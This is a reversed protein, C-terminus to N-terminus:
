RAAHADIAVLDKSLDVANNGNARGDWVISLLAPGANRAYAGSAGGTREGLLYPRGNLAFAGGPARFQDPTNGGVFSSRGDNRESGTTMFNYCAFAEGTSWRQTFSVTDFWGFAQPGPRGPDQDIEVAFGEAPPLDILVRGNVPDDTPVINAVSQLRDSGGTRGNFAIGLVVPKPERRGFTRLNLGGTSEGVLYLGGDLVFASSVARYRTVGTASTLNRTRGSADEEGTTIVRYSTYRERVDTWRLLPAYFVHLEVRVQAGPRSANVDRLGPWVDGSPIDIEFRESIRLASTIAQGDEDLDDAASAADGVCGGALLACVGMSIAWGNRM